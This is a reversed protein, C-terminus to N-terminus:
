PDEGKMSCHENEPGSLDSKGGQLTLLYVLIEDIERDALRPHWAPMDLPPSPGEPDLQVAQRGNRVLERMAEFQQRVVPFLPV